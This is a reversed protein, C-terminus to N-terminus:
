NGKRCENLELMNVTWSTEPDGKRQQGTEAVIGEEPRPQFGKEEERLIAGWETSSVRWITYNHLTTGKIAAKIHIRGEKFREVKQSTM